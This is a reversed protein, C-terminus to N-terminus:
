FIYTAWLLKYESLTVKHLRDEWFTPDGQNLHPIGVQDCLGASINQVQM